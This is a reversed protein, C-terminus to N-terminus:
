FIWWCYTSSKGMVIVDPPKFLLLALGTRTWTIKPNYVMAFSWLQNTTQFM